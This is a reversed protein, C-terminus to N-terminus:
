DAPLQACTRAPRSALVSQVPPRGSGGASEAAADFEGRPSIVEGDEEVAM